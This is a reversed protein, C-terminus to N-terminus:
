LDIYTFWKTLSIYIKGAGLLPILSLGISRTHGWLAITYSLQSCHTKFNNNTTSQKSWGQSAQQITYSATVGDTEKHSYWIDCM